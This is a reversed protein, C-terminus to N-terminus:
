GGGQRCRRAARRPRRSAARPSPTKLHTNLKAGTNFALLCGRCNEGAMRRLFKRARSRRAPLQQDDGVPVVEIIIEFDFEKLVFISVRDDKGHNFYGRALTPKFPQFSEPWVVKRAQSIDIEWEGSHQANFAPAEARIRKLALKVFWHSLRPKPPPFSGITDLFFITVAFLIFGAGALLTGYGLSVFVSKEQHQSSTIPRSHLRGAVAIPQAPLFEGFFTSVLVAAVACSLWFLVKQRQTREHYRGLFYSAGILGVTEVISTLLTAMMRGFDFHGFNTM